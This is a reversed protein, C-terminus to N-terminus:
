RVCWTAATAALSSATLMAAASIPVSAHFAASATTSSAARPADVAASIAAMRLRHLRYRLPLCEFDLRRRWGRM